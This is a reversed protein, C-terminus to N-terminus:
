KDSPQVAVSVKKERDYVHVIDDVVLKYYRLYVTEGDKICDMM